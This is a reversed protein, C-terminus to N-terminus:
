RVFIDQRERTRAAGIYPTIPAFRSCSAFMFRLSKRAAAITDAADVAPLLTLGNSGALAAGHHGAVRRM